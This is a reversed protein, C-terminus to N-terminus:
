PKRAAGILGLQEILTALQRRAADNGVGNRDALGTLRLCHTGDAITIRILGNDFPLVIPGSQTLQTMADSTMEGIQSLQAQAFSEAGQAYLDVQALDNVQATKRISLTLSALLALTVASMLSLVLLTSLLVTGEDGRRVSREVM